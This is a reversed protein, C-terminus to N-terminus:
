IHVPLRFRFHCIISKIDFSYMLSRNCVQTECESTRTPIVIVRNVPNNLPVWPNIPPQALWGDRYVVRLVLGGGINDEAPFFIIENLFEILDILNFILTFVYNISHRYMKKFEPFFTACYPEFVQKSLNFIQLILTETNLFVLM